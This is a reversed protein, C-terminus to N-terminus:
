ASRWANTLEHIYADRAARRADDLRANLAALDTRAADAAASMPAADGSPAADGQWASTLAVVSERYARDRVAQSADSVVFGPRSGVSRGYGDHLEVKPARAADAMMMSVRIAKGDRLLGGEDVADRYRDDDDYPSPM